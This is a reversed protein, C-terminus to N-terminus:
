LTSIRMLGSLGEEVVSKTQSRHVVIGWGVSSPLVYVKLIRSPTLNWSPEGRVAASTAFLQCIIMSGGAPTRLGRCLQYSITSLTSAGSGDVTMKRRLNAVLANRGAIASGKVKM